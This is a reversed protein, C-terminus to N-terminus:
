GVAAAVAVCCMGICINAHFVEIKDCKFVITNEKESRGPRMGEQSRPASYRTPGPMM